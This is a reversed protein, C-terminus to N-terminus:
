TASSVGVAEGRARVQLGADPSMALSSDLVSIVHELAAELTPRADMPRRNMQIVFSSGDSAPWLTAKIAWHSRESSPFVHYGKRDGETLFERVSWAGIIRHKM